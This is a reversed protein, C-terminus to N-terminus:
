INLYYGNHNQLRNIPSFAPLKLPVELFIDVFFRRRAWVGLNSIKAGLRGIKFINECWVHLKSFINAGFARNQFYKQVLRGIKLINRCGVDLKLCRNGSFLELKWAKQVSNITM